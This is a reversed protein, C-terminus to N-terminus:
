TRPPASRWAPVADGVPGGAVRTAEAGVRALVAAILEVVPVEREGLWVTGDDIRRKPNPELGAPHGGAARLADAGVLLGGGPAGFVASALLPSGDFLLPHVRGDPDALAAVTNSTGFDIGIRTAAV